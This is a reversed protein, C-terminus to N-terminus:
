LLPEGSYRAIAERTEDRLRILDHWGASNANQPAAGTQKPYIPALLTITVRTPRPLITGDRLFHRTGALSVPIVPVGASVAAKFAGLQFPRVGDEPTFTGEPFVFISDGQRLLEEMKEATLLGEKKGDFFIRGAKLAVVRSIEPVIDPLEHTVLIIATGSNALDRMTQRLSQQAALDLSNCPEDFLLAGPQHVLARAILVRRAEGSSMENVAREALYSVKLRAMVAEALERQGDDVRHNSFINISSFFGSLVVDRGCAEGTCSLMLDNSVIGLRARLAFVDWTEHGFLSM